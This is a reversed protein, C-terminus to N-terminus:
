NVKVYIVVDFGSMANNKNNMDVSLSLPREEGPGVNVGTGWSSYTYNRFVNTTSAKLYKTKLIDDAAYWSNSTVTNWPVFIGAVRLSNTLTIATGPAGNTIVTAIGSNTIQLSITFSSDGTNNIQFGKSLDGYGFITQMGKKVFYSGWTKVEVNKGAEIVTFHVTASGNDLASVRSTFGFGVLATVALVIIFNRM